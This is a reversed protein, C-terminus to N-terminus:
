DQDGLIRKVAVRMDPILVYFLIVVVAAYAATAALSVTLRALLSVEGFSAMGWKLVVGSVLTGLLATVFITVLWSMEALSLNQYWENFKKM